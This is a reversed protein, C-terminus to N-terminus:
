HVVETGRDRPFIYKRAFSGKSKSRMFNYWHMGNFNKFEYLRGSNKFVVRLVETVANYGVRTFMTSQPLAMWSFGDFPQPMTDVDSNVVAKVAIRPAIIGQQLAGVTM